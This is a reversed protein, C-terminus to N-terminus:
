TLLERYAQLYKASIKSWSLERATLYAERSLEELKHKSRLIEVLIDTIQEPHTANYVFGNKGSKIFSAIGSQDSVLIIMGLAMAELAFISFPMYGLNDILFHKDRLFEYLAKEPLPQILNIDDAITGIANGIVTLHYNELIKNAFINLLEELGRNRSNELGNYFVVELRLNINFNKVEYNDPVLVGNPIILSGSSNVEYYNKALDIMQKSLFVLVDSKKFILKELTLDKLKSIFSPKNIFITQEYQYIGHVTYVIKFKLLPRLLFVVITFREFTVLHIISPKIKYLEIILRLLGLRYIQQNSYLKHFGFLLTKFNRTKKSKFFYSLFVTNKNTTSIENFLNKAVKEPGSLIEGEGFRGVLAIKM